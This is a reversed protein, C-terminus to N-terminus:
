YKIIVQPKPGLIKSYLTYTMVNCTPYGICILLCGMVFQAFTVIPTYSCWKYSDPCGVAEAEKSSNKHKETTTLNHPSLTSLYNYDSQKLDEMHSSEFYLIDTDSQPIDSQTSNNQSNSSTEALETAYASNSQTIFSSLDTTTWSTSTPVRTTSTSNPPPTEVPGIASISLCIILKAKCNNRNFLSISFM